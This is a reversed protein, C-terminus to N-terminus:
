VWLLVPRLVVTVTCGGCWENLAPGNSSRFPSVLNASSTASDSLELVQLPFVSIQDFHRLSVVGGGALALVSGSLTGGGRM